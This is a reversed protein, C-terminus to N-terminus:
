YIDDRDHDDENSDNSEEHEEESNQDGVVVDIDLAALAAQLDHANEVMQALQELTTPNGDVSAVVAADDATTWPFLSQFFQRVMIAPGLTSLQDPTTGHRTLPTAGIPGHDLM